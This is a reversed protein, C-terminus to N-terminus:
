GRAQVVRGVDAGCVLSRTRLDGVLDAVHRVAGADAQPGPPGVDDAEDQRGLVVHHVVRRPQDGGDGAASRPVGNWMIM